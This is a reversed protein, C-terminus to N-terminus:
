LRTAERRLWWEFGEKSYKGDKELEPFEAVANDLYYTVTEDVLRDQFKIRVSGDIRDMYDQLAAATGFGSSHKARVKLVVSSEKILLRIRPLDLWTKPKPLGANKIVAPEPWLHAWLYMAFVTLVVVLIYDPNMGFGELWQALDSPLNAVGMADGIRRLIDWATYAVPFGFLRGDKFIQKIRM